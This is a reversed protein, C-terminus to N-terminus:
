GETSSPIWVAAWRDQQGSPCSHQYSVAWVGCLVCSVNKLFESAAKWHNWVARYGSIFLLCCVDPLLASLSFPFSFCPSSSSSCSLYKLQSHFCSKESVSCISICKTYIWNFYSPFSCASCSLSIVRQNSSASLFPKSETTPSDLIDLINDEASEPRCCCTWECLFVDDGRMWKMCCLKFTLQQLLISFLVEGRRMGVHSDTWVTFLSTLVVRLLFRIM